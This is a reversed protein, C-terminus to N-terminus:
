LKSKQSRSQLESLRQATSTVRLTFLYALYRLGEYISAKSQGSVRIGFQFPVEYVKLDPFRGLIELLIKFGSPNLFGPDIAERRVLFYGSIPDTIKQLRRFFLLRAALTCLKSYALRVGELGTGESPDAYRSGVIIDAGQIRASELLEPIL